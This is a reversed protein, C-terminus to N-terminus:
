PLSFEESCVQQYQDQEPPIYGFCVRYRGPPAPQGSFPLRRDIVAGSPMAPRDATMIMPAGGSLIEDLNRFRGEEWKQLRLYGVAGVISSSFGNIVRACVVGPVDLAKAVYVSVRGAPGTEPLPLCGLYSPHEGRVM